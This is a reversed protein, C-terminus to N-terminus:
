ACKDYECQFVQYNGRSRRTIACLLLLNTGHRLFSIIIGSLLMQAHTSWGMARIPHQHATVLKEFKFSDDEWLTFEGLQTGLVLRRGDSSWCGAHVPSKGQRNFGHLLFHSCVGDSPNYRNFSPTTVDRMYQYHPQLMQRDRVSRVTHQLQMKNIISNYSTWHKRVAPEGSHDERRGDYM